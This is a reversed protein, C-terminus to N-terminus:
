ILQNSGLLKPNLGVWILCWNPFLYGVETIPPHRGLCSDRARWKMRKRRGRWNKEGDLRSPPSRLNKRAHPFRRWCRTKVARRIPCRARVWMWSRLRGVTGEYTLNKQGDNRGYSTTFIRGTDDSTSKGKRLIPNIPMPTKLTNVLMALYRTCDTM